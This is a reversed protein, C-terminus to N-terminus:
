RKLRDYTEQKQTESLGQWSNFTGGQNFWEDPATLYKSPEPIVGNAWSQRAREKNQILFMKEQRIDNLASKLKAPNAFWDNLDTGM